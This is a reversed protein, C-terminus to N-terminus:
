VTIGRGALQHILKHLEQEKREKWAKYRCADSCYEKRGVVGVWTQPIPEGCRQCNRDPTVLTKPM